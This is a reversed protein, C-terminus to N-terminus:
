CSTKLLTCPSGQCCKEGPSCSQGPGRCCDTFDFFQCSRACHLTGGAWEFSSCKNMGLDTGDCEEGQEIMNNGCTPGDTDTATDTDTTDTETETETEFTTTADTETPGSTTATDTETETETSSTVETDLTVEGETTEGTDSTESGASTETGTDTGDSSGDTTPDGATTSADISTSDMPLCDREPAEDSCGDNDALCVSCYRLEGHAMACFSDGGRYNCHETNKGVCSAAALGLAVWLSALLWPATRRM